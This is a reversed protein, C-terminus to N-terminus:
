LLFVALNKGKQAPEPDALVFHRLNGQDYAFAVM